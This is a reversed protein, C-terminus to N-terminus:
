DEEIHQGEAHPEEELEEFAARLADAVGEANGAKVADILEQACHHLYDPGEAEEEGHLSGSIEAAVSHHGPLEHGSGAYKAGTVQETIGQMGSSNKHPGIV